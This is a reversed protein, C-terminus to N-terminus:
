EHVLAIRVLDFDVHKLIFCQNNEFGNGESVQEMDFANIVGQGPHEDMLLTSAFYLLVDFGHAAYRSMDAKYNMRYKRLLRKTEPLSYNLDSSSAWHLNYKNRVVGKIDDFGAWDKTGFVSITGNGAKTGSKQLTNMFKLAATKDRTPVIFVTGGNKRIYALLDDSKVEILKVNGKTKSLELFRERFADYLEKDKAVGTNILVIQDRAHNDLVYRATIRQQTIDTSVAAYVYPNNKLMASNCASPCVMRIQNTKCWAGVIEAGQPLLPGIILEMTKMEEKKLLNVVSLSDNKVDYVHIVANFGLQELSDVALEMGMYFETAINKLSESAGEGGDLYFPLLVAIHYSEKKKFLLYQDVKPVEEVPKIERVPVQKVNEKKLPIRLIDGPKINNSKLKNFEQLEIVPVMFRKSISYMTEEKQVTYVIVTDSFSVTPQTAPKVPVTERTDTVPVAAKVPIRIIQGLKLGADSGPNLKTLEAVSCNEKKAISYLTEGKVVTHEKMSMGDITGAEANGVPIMVKQGEVLGKEIGPNAAIIDDVPVHYTAHLGWLTNGPLVYHVIYKKGKKYEYTLEETQSFAFTGIFLVITLLLYKM